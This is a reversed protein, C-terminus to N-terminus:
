CYGGVLINHLLFHQNINTGQRDTALLSTRLKYLTLSLRTIDNSNYHVANTGGTHVQVIRLSYSEMVSFYLCQTTAVLCLSM